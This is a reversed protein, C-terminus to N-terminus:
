RAGGSQQLARAASVRVYIDATINPFMGGAFLLALDPERAKAAQFVASPLQQQVGQLRAAATPGLTDPEFFLANYVSRTINAPPTEDAAALVATANSSLDVAVSVASVAVSPTCMVVSHLPNAALGSLFYFVVPRYQLPEGAFTQCEESEPLPAM